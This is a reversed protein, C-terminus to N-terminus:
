MRGSSRSMWAYLQANTLKTGPVRALKTHQDQTLEASRPRCVAPRRTPDPWRRRSADSRRTSEICDSQALPLPQKVNGLQSSGPRRPTSRPRTAALSDQPPSASARGASSSLNGGIRKSPLRRLIPSVASCPSRAQFVSAGRRTTPKTRLTGAPDAGRRQFRRQDMGTLRVKSVARLTQQTAIGIKSNPAVVSERAV